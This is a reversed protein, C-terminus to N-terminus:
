REAYRLAAKGGSGRSSSYSTKRQLLFEMKICSSNPYKNGKKKPFSLNSGLCSFSFSMCGCVRCTPRLLDGRTEKRNRHGRQVPLPPTLPLPQPHLRCGPCVGLSDNTKRQLAQLYSPARPGSWGGGGAGAGAMALGPWAGAARCEERALFAKWAPRHSQLFGSTSGEGICGVARLWRGGGM